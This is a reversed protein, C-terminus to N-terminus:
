SRFIELTPAKLVAIADLDLPENARGIVLMEDATERRYGIVNRPARDRAIIRLHIDDHRESV